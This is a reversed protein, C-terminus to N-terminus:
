SKKKKQGDFHLIKFKEASDEYVAARSKIATCLSDLIVFYSNTKFKKSASFTISRQKKRNILIRNQSANVNAQM